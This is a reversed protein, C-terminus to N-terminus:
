KVELVNGDLTGKASKIYLVGDELTAIVSSPTVAIGRQMRMRCGIQYCILFSEPDTIAKTPEEPEEPEEPETPTGSPTYAFLSTYKLSEFKGFWLGTPMDLPNDVTLVSAVGDLAKGNKGLSASWDDEYGEEGQLVLISNTLQMAVIANTFDDKRLIIDSVKCFYEEVVELGTTDGDWEIVTMGDLPIPDTAEMYTSGDINLINHSGWIPPYPLGAPATFDDMSQWKSDLLGFSTGNGTAGTCVSEDSGLFGHESVIMLVYMVGDTVLCGYPYQAKLEETWVSDINPLKVGNYLAYGNGSTQTIM